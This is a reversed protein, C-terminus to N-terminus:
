HCECGSLPQGSSNTGLPGVGQAGPCANEPRVLYYFVQGPPPLAPDTSLLDTGDSELCIGANFFDDRISTRLTDYRVIGGPVTPASWSIGIQDAMMVLNRAETLPFWASSVTDDCDNACESFGDGDDDVENTGALQPWNPHLCDNNYGDGCVQAAGPYASASADNCDGDCETFGDLDDDVAHALAYRGGTATDSSSDQGGWIVMFSGTWAASHTFRPPPAGSTTTGSWSNGVPDYRGGTGLAANSDEGGWIVM